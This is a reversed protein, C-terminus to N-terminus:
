LPSCKAWAKKLEIHPLGMKSKLSANQYTTVIKAKGFTHVCV